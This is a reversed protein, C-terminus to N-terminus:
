VMTTRTKKDNGHPLGLLLLRCCMDKVGGLRTVEEHAQIAVRKECKNLGIHVNQRKNYPHSFTHM